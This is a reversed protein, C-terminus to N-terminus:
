GRREVGRLRNGIARAGTRTPPFRMPLDPAELQFLAEPEPLGHLRHHGLARFAVGAPASAEVARVAANSLLTQGGHAAACIRAATHVPLGVYGSDTLTPRGTHIGIRVRVLAEQPWTRSGIRRQMALAAALAGVPRKFVAFLEDARVDVERGGSRQM